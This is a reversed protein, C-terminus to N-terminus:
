IGGYTTEFGMAFDCHMTTQKGLGKSAGAVDVAEVVAEVAVAEAEEAVVAGHVVEDLHAAAVM